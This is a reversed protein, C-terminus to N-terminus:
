GGNHLRRRERRVEHVQSRFERRLEREAQIRDKHLERFEALMARREEESANKLRERLERRAQIFDEMTAARQERFQLRLERIAGAGTEIGPPTTPETTGDQALASTALLVSGALALTAILKNKM